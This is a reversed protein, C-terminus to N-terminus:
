SNRHQRLNTGDRLQFLTYEETANQETTGLTVIEVDNLAVVVHAASEADLRLSLEVETLEATEYEIGLVETDVRPLPILVFVQLGVGVAGFIQVVQIHLAVM